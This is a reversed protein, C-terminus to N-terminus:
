PRLKMNLILGGIRFYGAYPVALANIGTAVADNAAFYKASKFEVVEVGEVTQVGDVLRMNSYEGNFPLNEIYERIAERCAAEVNEPLLVPNYYIDLEADFTDGPANIVSIRVGADRIESMYAAFQTEAAADLPAREGAATEGAIKVTLISADDSEVAVAHKVVRAAAIEEDTMGALDYVDGDEILMRDKMFELAKMRYWKARHPVITEIRAEVEERHLDFLKELTWACFAVVHFWISELSVRSFQEDFTRGEELGYAERVAPEDIWAATISDKIETVTRSM